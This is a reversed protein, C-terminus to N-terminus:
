FGVNLGFTIVRPLYPRVVDMGFGINTNGNANAEPDIGSYNTFTALNQGQVFMRLKTMRLKSLISKPLNYGFQLSRLRVFDGKELWRSSLSGFQADGWILKPVNTVQGPTTWANLLDTHKNRNNTMAMLLSKTNNYVYFDFAFQLDVTLDLNGYRLTQSLGGFFKPYPTKENDIVRDDATIPAVVAGTKADTWRQAAPKTQDFQKANGNADLWMGLGNAPNVGAWRILFAAGLDSGAKAISYGGTLQGNVDNFYLIKNKSYAINFNIDWSFKKSNVIPASLSLEVGSNEIEGINQVLTSGLGAQTVIPNNLVLDLANKRYYDMSLTVGKKGLTADFGVNLQAAREWRLKSNGVQGLGFTPIGIDAYQSPAWFQLSVFDGINANGTVGYSARLKLEPLWKINKMFKEETIRWALSAGPFSGFKNEAGFATAADRRFNVTAFLKNKYSYNLSGFYSLRGNNADANSPTNNEAGTQQYNSPTLSTFRPDNLTIGFNYAWSGFTRFAEYGALANISHNGFKKNFTLTNTWTWAYLDTSTSQAVGGLGQGDGVLPNWFQDNRSTLYDIGIQSKFKFSKAITAEGYLSGIFRNSIRNDRNLNQVAVPNPTNIAIGNGGQGLYFDNPNTPDYVPVNPYMTLAGFPYGSLAGGTGSGLGFSKTRSFQTKVGLEFFDNVKSTINLRASGRTQKNVLIFNEYDNYNLSAYYSGKATGGSASIQHNQTFGQREAADQWNNDIVDVIGDGNLDAQSAINALGAGARLGNVTKIYQDSNMVPLRNSARVFGVYTDYNLTATGAKGRKTTVLIVGNTGLSGYIAASAADKLIEVNEIDAPNLDALANAPNYLQGQNGQTVIVGDIVILPQTNSSISGTGRVRIVVNDGVLGSSTNIQVGAAKGTLAQDFSLVPKDEFAEKKVSSSAGSFVKKSVSQYGTSVVVEDVLTSKSDLKADVFNNAPITLSKTEFSVSNFELKNINSAVQITFNGDKDTAVKAKGASVTVGVAPKGDDGTVKGKVTRNQAFVATVAM